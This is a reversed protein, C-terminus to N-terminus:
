SPYEEEPGREARPGAGVAFTGGVGDGRAENGTVGRGELKEDEVGAGEIGPRGGIEEDALGANSFGPTFVGDVGDLPAVPALVFKENVDWFPENGDAAPSVGGLFTGGRGDIDGEIREPCRTALENVGTSGM